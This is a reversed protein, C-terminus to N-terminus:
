LLTVIFYSYQLLMGNIINQVNCPEQLIESIKRDAKYINKCYQVM